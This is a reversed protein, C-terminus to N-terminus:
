RAIPTPNKHMAKIPVAQSCHRREFLTCNLGSKGVATNTATQTCPANPASVTVMFSCGTMTVICKNSAIPKSNM